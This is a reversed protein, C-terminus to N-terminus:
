TQVKYTSLVALLDERSEVLVVVEAQHRSLFLCHCDFAIDGIRTAVGRLNKHRTVVKLKCEDSKESQPLHVQYSIIALTCCIGWNFYTDTASKAVNQVLDM